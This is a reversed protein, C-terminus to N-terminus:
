FILTKELIKSVLDKVDFHPANCQLFPFREADFLFFKQKSTSHLEFDSRIDGINVNSTKINQKEGVICM